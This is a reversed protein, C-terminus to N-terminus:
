QVFQSLTMDHWSCILLSRTTICWSFMCSNTDKLNSFRFRSFCFMFILLFIYSSRNKKEKTLSHELDSAHLRIGCNNRYSCEKKIAATIMIAVYPWFVNWQCNLFTISETIKIFNFIFCSGNVQMIM